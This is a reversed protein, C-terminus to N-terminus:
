FLSMTQNELARPAQARVFERVPVDRPDLCGADLESYMWALDPDAKIWGHLLAHAPEVPPSKLVEAKRAALHAVACGIRGQQDTTTGKLWSTRDNAKALDKLAQQGWRIDAESLGSFPNVALPTRDGSLQM